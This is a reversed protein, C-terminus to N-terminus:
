SLSSTGRHRRAQDAHVDAAAPDLRPHHVRTAPHQDPVPDAHLRRLRGDGVGHDLRGGPDDGLEARVGPGTPMPRGEASTSPVAIVAALMSGAQIPTFAASRNVSAM